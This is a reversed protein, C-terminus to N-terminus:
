IPLPGRRSVTPEPEPIRWVIRVQEDLPLSPGGVYIRHILYIVALRLAEPEIDDVGVVRARTLKNVQRVIRPDTELPGLEAVIEPELETDRRMALISRTMLDPESEIRDLIRTLVYDHIVDAEIKGHEESEEGTCSPCGECESPEFPNGEPGEDAQQTSIFCSAAWMIESRSLELDEASWLDPDILSSGDEPVPIESRMLSELSVWLPQWNQSSLLLTAVAAGPSKWFILDEDDGNIFHLVHDTPDFEAGSMEGLHTLVAQRGRYRGVYRRAHSVFREMTIDNLVANPSVGIFRPPNLPGFRRLQHTANAWYLRSTEPDYVVCYVPINGNAWTDGHQDVPVAYGNGRRWSDGGKVQVKVTDSTVEGDDTFTVYFDEGFDNQGAIEQVIHDHEELLSRLANM